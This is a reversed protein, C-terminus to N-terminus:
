GVDGFHDVYGLETSCTAPQTRALGQVYSWLPHGQLTTWDAHCWTAPAGRVQELADYRAAAHAAAQARLLRVREQAEEVM